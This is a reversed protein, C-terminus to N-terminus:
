LQPPVANGVGERLTIIQTHAKKKRDNQKDKILANLQKSSSLTRDAAGQRSSFAFLFAPNM